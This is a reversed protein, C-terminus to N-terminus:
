MRRRMQALVSDRVVAMTSDDRAEVNLRLLPETNSPRLNFWWEDALVSLGDLHDLAVDDREAYEAEVVNLVSDVDSVTTNIEGSARYRDYTKAIESLPVDIEAM